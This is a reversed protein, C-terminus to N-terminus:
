GYNVKSSTTLARQLSWGRNLRKWLTMNTIGLDRAWQAMTQTKGAYTLLRNRRTNNCQEVASAWRCNEKCYPGNNNRRDITLGKPRKGMDRYFTEFSDRWEQCVYIGRGGYRHYSPDTQKHCRSIMKLWVHYEDTEAMGHTTNRRICIDRSIEKMLCGCSQSGGYRLETGRIVRETGCVCRCLWLATGSSNKGVLKLATWRAFRQGTIDMHRSVM